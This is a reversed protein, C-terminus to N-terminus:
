VGIKILVCFCLKAGNFTVFVLNFLTKIHVQLESCCSQATDNASANVPHINIHHSTGGLAKCVVDDLLASCILAHGNCVVGAMHRRFKGHLCGHCQRGVSDLCVLELGQTWSRFQGKRHPFQSAYGTNVDRGAMVRRLVVSVLYVPLVAGLKRRRMVLAHCLLYQGYLVQGRYLGRVLSRGRSCALVLNDASFDVVLINGLDLGLDHVLLGNVLHLVLDADHVCWKVACAVNRGSSHHLFQSEGM